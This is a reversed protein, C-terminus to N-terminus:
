VFKSSIGDGLYHTIVVVSLAIVLHETIIKWPKENQIKALYLSFLGLLVLGWIVSVIIATSLPFILVPLSFSLAVLFKALFTSVGSQWIEKPTHNAESEESVHIGLADSFADAIAITLIAGLVVMKSHTGAHLGVILGLTTVVGSTLGFSAGIKQSHNM